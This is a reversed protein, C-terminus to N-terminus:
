FNVIYSFRYLADWPRPGVVPLDVGMLIWNDKMNLGPIKGLNFRCAPTISGLTHGDTEGDLDTQFFAEVFLTFSGFIPTEPSTLTKAISVDYAVNNRRTGVAAPGDFTTFFVSHYLGVRDLNLWYALDEFGGYGYSVSSQTEGIGRNPANVRFNLSYSSSETDILQFRGVLSPFGGDVDATKDRDSNGQYTGVVEIMFRRNIAYAVLGDVVDISAVKKSNVNDQHQYDFRFEREMFNTQVRLLAFDPTGTARIRKTSDESWGESFFNWLTLDSLSNARGGVDIAASEVAVPEMAVTAIPFVPEDAVAKTLPFSLVLAAVLVSRVLASKAAARCM